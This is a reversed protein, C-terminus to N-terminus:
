EVRMPVRPAVACMLEYGITGASAAVEDISLTQGWLEVESGIGAADIATLDVCLMDMSVRGLLRSCQGAVLVPTGTPAHRPYGDAYGCAVTGIRMPRDATFTAGYGVSDGAQLQQTSIIKARLTMAAVLGLSTASQDALPSSGYLAIGPRVWDGHVQPYAFTAASNALSVPLGLGATGQQFRAWQATVGVAPDDATAFHTMLTIGAVNPLQQLQAVVASAQEAAFGLRNMGTNLKVFVQVPRVLTTQTLWELHQPEHIALWLDHEACLQLEAPSFAGELLLIPQTVGMARLRLAAPMELLAFGDAAPLAAVVQEIGHGYANAKIVALACAGVARQKIVQYNHHLASRHIVVEIPRTM